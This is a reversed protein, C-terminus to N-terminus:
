CLVKFASDVKGESIQSLGAKCEGTLTDFLRGVIFAAETTQRRIIKQAETERAM